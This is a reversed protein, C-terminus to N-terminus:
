PSGNGITNNQPRHKHQETAQTQTTGGKKALLKNRQRYIIHEPFGNNHAMANEEM